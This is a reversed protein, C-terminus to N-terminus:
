CSVHIGGTPNQSYAWGSTRTNGGSYVTIKARVRYHGAATPCNRKAPRTTMGTHGGIINTNWRSGVTSWLCGSSSHTCKQLEIVPTISSVASTCLGFDGQGKIANETTSRHPNNARVQCTRGNVTVTVWSGAHAPTTPLTLLVGTIMLLAVLLCASQRPVITRRPMDSRTQDNGETLVAVSRPEGM